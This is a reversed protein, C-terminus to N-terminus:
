ILSIPKGVRVPSIPCVMVSRYKEHSFLFMKTQDGVQGVEYDYCRVADGAGGGRVAGCVARGRVRSGDAGSTWRRRATSSPDASSYIGERDRARARGRVDCAFARERAASSRDFRGGFRGGLKPRPPKKKPPPTAFPPRLHPEQHERHVRRHCTWADPAVFSREGSPTFTSRSHIAHGGCVLHHDVETITEAVTFWNM